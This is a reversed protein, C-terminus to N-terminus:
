TKTRREVLSSSDPRCCFHTLDLKMVRLIVQEAIITLKITAKIDNSPILLDIM